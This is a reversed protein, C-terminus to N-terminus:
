ALVQRNWYKGGLWTLALGLGMAFVGVVDMLNVTHQTDLQWIQPGEKSEPLALSALGMLIFLIGAASMAIVLLSHKGGTM